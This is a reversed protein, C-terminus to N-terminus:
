TYPKAMNTVLTALMSSCRATSSNVKCRSSKQDSPLKNLSAWKRKSSRLSQVQRWKKMVQQRLKKNWRKKLSDLSLLMQTSCTSNLTKTRRTMVNNWTISSLRSGAWTVRTRETRTVHCRSKMAQLWRDRRVLNMTHLLLKVKPTLPRSFSRKRSAKFGSFNIFVMEITRRSWNVLKARSMSRSFVFKSKSTRRRLCTRTKNSLRTWGNVFRSRVLKLIQTKRNGWIKMFSCLLTRKLESVTMSSRMGAESCSMSKSMM